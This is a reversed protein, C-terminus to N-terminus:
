IKAATLRTRLENTPSVLKGTIAYLGSELLRCGRVKLVMAVRPDPGVTGRLPSGPPSSLTSHVTVVDGDIAAVDASGSKEWSIIM